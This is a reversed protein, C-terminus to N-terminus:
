GRFEAESQSLFAFLPILAMTLKEQSVPISSITTDIDTTATKPQQSKNDAANEWLHRRKYRNPTGEIPYSQYMM